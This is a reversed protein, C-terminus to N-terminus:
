HAHEHEHQHQHGQHDPRHEADDERTWRPVSGELLGLDEFSHITHQVLHRVEEIPLNGVEAIDQALDEETGTGDCLQYVISASQNLHYLGDERQDYVVSEGDLEVVALDDRVKIKAV